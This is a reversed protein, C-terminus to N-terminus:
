KTRKDKNGNENEKIIQVKKVLYQPYEKKIKKYIKNIHQDFVMMTSGSGSMITHGIKNLKQYVDELLPHVSMAVKELDNQFAADKKSQIYLIMEDMKFANTYTTVNSFIEKTSIYINPYVIVLRKPLIVDIKTVKEGIGEVVAPYNVMCYVVDASQYKLLKGLVEIDLPIHYIDLLYRIITAVDCSGGGLGAGVPIKKTITIKFFDEIHYYDKVIKLCSLVLHNNLNNVNKGKFKIQDIKKSNKKIKIKDYLNIKANLMQLLHYDDPTKALIKLILNIKAYAKLLM